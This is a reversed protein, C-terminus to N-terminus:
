ALIDDTEDLDDFPDDDKSDPIIGFIIKAGSSKHGMRNEIREIGDLAGEANFKWAGLGKTKGAVTAMAWQIISDDAIINLLELRQENTLHCKREMFAKVSDMREARALELAAKFEKQDRMYKGARPDLDNSCDYRIFQLRYIIPSESIEM